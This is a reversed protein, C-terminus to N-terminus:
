DLLSQEDFMDAQKLKYSKVLNIRDGNFFYQMNIYFMNNALSQYLIENSLLENVGRIFTIRAYSWIKRGSLDNFDLFVRDENPNELMLKYVLGFVNHGASTLNALVAVGSVYIKIFQETDVVEPRVFTAQTPIIEGTNSDTLILTSNGKTFIRKNKTVLNLNAVSPNFDYRQLTTRLDPKKAM